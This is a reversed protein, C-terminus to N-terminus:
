IVDLKFRVASYFGTRSEHMKEGFYEGQKVIHRYFFFTKASDFKLIHTHACASQEFTFYIEIYISCFLLQGKTEDM